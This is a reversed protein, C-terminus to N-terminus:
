SVSQGSLEQKLIRQLELREKASMELLVLELAGARTTFGAEAAGDWDLDGALDAILSLSADEGLPALADAANAEIAAPAAPSEPSAPGRPAVGAAVIVAALAVAPMVVRWTMWGALRAREINMGAGGAVSESVRASLHEWFLPSPEPVEIDAVASLMAGLDAVQQRCLECSELHPLSREARTGEALDILEEENLHRM